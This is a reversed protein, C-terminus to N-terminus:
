QLIFFTFYKPIFKFCSHTGTLHTGGATASVLHLYRPYTPYVAGWSWLGGSGYGGPVMAGVPVMGGKNPVMAGEPVKSGQFWVVVSEPVMGGQVMGEPVIDGGEGRWLFM